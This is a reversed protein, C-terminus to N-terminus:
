DIAASAMSEASDGVQATALTRAPRPEPQSSWGLEFTLPVVIKREDLCRPCFDWSSAVRAPYSSGCNECKFMRGRRGNPDVTATM